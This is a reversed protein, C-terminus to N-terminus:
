NKGEHWVQRERPIGLEGEMCDALEENPPCDLLVSAPIATGASDIRTEVQVSCALGLQGAREEIYAETLAAIRTELSHQWEEELIQREREASRQLETLESLDFGRHMQLPQALCLILLLGATFSTIQRFTGEPALSEALSLFLVCAILSTMWARLAPIM